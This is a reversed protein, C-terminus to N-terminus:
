EAERAHIAAGVILVACVTRAHVTAGTDVADIAITANTRGPLRQKPRTIIHPLSFFIGIKMKGHENQASEGTAVTLRANVFAVRRRTQVACRTHVVHFVEGAM